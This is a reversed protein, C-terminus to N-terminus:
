LDIELSPRSVVELMNPVEFYRSEKDCKLKSEGSKLRLSAGLVIESSYTDYKFAEVTSSINEKKNFVKKMSISVLFAWSPFQKKQSKIVTVAFINNEMNKGKNTFIFVYHEDNAVDAKNFSFHFHKFKSSKTMAFILSSEKLKRQTQKEISHTLFARNDQHRDLVTEFSFM